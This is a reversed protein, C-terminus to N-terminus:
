GGRLPHRRHGRAPLAHPQRARLYRAAARGYALVIDEIMAVPMARPMVHFREAPTALPGFAARASGDSGSHRERGGHGLQGFLAINHANSTAHVAASETIILGCGRGRV